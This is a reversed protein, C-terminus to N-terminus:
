MDCRLLAQNMSLIVVVLLELAPFAILALTPGGMLRRWSAIRTRSCLGYHSELSFAVQGLSFLPVQVRWFYGMPVLTVMSFSAWGSAPFIQVPSQDRWTHIVINWMVGSHPMQHDWVHPDCTAWNLTFSLFLLTLSQSAGM